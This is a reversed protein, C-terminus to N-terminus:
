LSSVMLHRPGLQIVTDVMGTEPPPKGTSDVHHRPGVQLGTDIMEPPPKETSDVHALVPLRESQVSLGRSLRKYLPPEGSSRLQEQDVSIREATSTSGSPTSSIPRLAASFSLDTAHTFLESRGRNERDLTSADMARAMSLNAVRIMERRLKSQSELPSGKLILFLRPAFLAGWIAFHHTIVAISTVVPALIGSSIYSIPMLSAWICILLCAAFTMLQAENPLKTLLITQAIKVKRATFAPIALALVLAAMVPMAYLMDKGNNVCFIDKRLEEVQVQSSAAALFICYIAVGPLSVVQAVALVTLQRRVTCTMASALKCLFKPVKNQDSLFIHRLMRLILTTLSLSFNASLLINRIVCLHHVPEFFLLFTAALGLFGSVILVASSQIEAATIVKSNRHRYYVVTTALLLLMVLASLSIAAISPVSMLDFYFADPSWCRTNEDVAITGSPCPRCVNGEKKDHYQNNTCSQCSWCCLGPRRLENKRAQVPAQISGNNCTASCISLPVETAGNAWLTRYFRELGLDESSLSDPGNANEAARRQWRALTRLVWEGDDNRVVGQIRFTPLVDHNEEFLGCNQLRGSVNKCGWDGQRLVTRIAQRYPVPEGADAQAQMYAQMRELLWVSTKVAMWLGGSAIPTSFNERRMYLAEAFSKTTNCTRRQHCWQGPQCSVFPLRCDFQEQWVRGLWPNQAITDRTPYTRSFHELLRDQFTEAEVLSEPVQLTTGLVTHSGMPISRKMYHVLQPAEAIWSDSAIWVFHRHKLWHAFDSSTKALQELGDFVARLYKGGLLLLVVTPAQLTPSGDRSANYWQLILYRIRRKDSYHFGADQAFCVHYGDRGALVRVHDALNTRSSTVDEWLMSVYTWNFYRLIAHMAYAQNMDATTTRILYPFDTKLTFVDSTSWYSIHPVQFSNLVSSATEVELSLGPGIVSGLIEEDGTPFIGGYGKTGGLCQLSALNSRKALSVAADFAAQAMFCTDHIELGSVLGRAVESDNVAEHLALKVAEVFEVVYPSALGTCDRPDSSMSPERLHLPFMAGLLFKPSPPKRRCSAAGADAQVCHNGALNYRFYPIRRGPQLLEGSIQEDVANDVCAQTVQSIGSVSSCGAISLVLFWTTWCIVRFVVSKHDTTGLSLPRQM